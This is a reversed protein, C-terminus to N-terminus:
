RKRAALLRRLAREQRDALTRIVKVRAFLKDNAEVLVWTAHRTSTRTVMENVAAEYQEWRQRNRWDENTLKWAKHPTRQREEFRRLQEDKSIHLWFKVLLIGHDVLQDEFENIEPYARAYEERSALGEVREVLVRGYWSRDFITIRGARSLHRMFRWLYHHALEEDTPAGIPIVRYHRADLAATVRRIAGGKGAADWGEFVAITTLGQAAAQWQLRNLRGQQRALEVRYRDRDIAQTLDLVGLVSAAGALPEIPVDPTGEPSNMRASGAAAAARGVGAAAVRDLEAAIADRVHAAVTLKRYNDDAGEVIQWTARATSTQRIVMEAAQKIRRYQGQRRWHAGSVRWRTLPDHELAKLRKHQIGASLHLWFKLVLAGDDTLAQETAAIRRLRSEFAHRGIRREVRDTMAPEYWAGHFLGIQGRPPLRRWYRWFAPRELEEDSPEGWACTVVWRPDMWENLLNATESRGAVDFGALVIIVPFAGAARLERQTELLSQRLAPARERYEERSIKAGLEAAEFM